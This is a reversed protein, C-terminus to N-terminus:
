GGRRGSSCATPCGCRRHRAEGSAVAARARCGRASRSRLDAANCSQSVCKALRKLGHKLGALTRGPGYIHPARGVTTVGRPTAARLPSKSKRNKRIQRTSVKHQSRSDPTVKKTPAPTAEHDLQFLLRQRFPEVRERCVVVFLNIVRNVVTLACVCVVSEDVCVSLM